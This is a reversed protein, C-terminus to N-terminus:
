SESKEAMNRAEIQKVLRFASASNRGVAPTTLVKNFKQLLEASFQEQLAIRSHLEKMRLDELLSIKNEAAELRKWIADAQESLAIVEGDAIRLRANLKKDELMLEGVRAELAEVRREWDGKAWEKVEEWLNRTWHWAM